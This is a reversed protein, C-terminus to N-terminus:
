GDPTFLELGTRSETAPGSQRLAKTLAALRWRGRIDLRLVKGDLRADVLAAGGAASGQHQGDRDLMAAAQQLLHYTNRYKSARLTDALDYLERIIEERDLQPEAV